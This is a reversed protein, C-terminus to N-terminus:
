GWRSALCVFVSVCTPMDVIREIYVSSSRNGMDGNVTRRSSMNHICRLCVCVCMAYTRIRSQYVNFASRPWFRFIFWRLAYSLWVFSAYVCVFRASCVICCYCFLFLVVCVRVFRFQSHSLSCFLALACSGLYVSCHLTLTLFMTRFDCQIWNMHLRKHSRNRM